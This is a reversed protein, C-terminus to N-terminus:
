THIHIQLVRVNVRRPDETAESHIAAFFSFETCDLAKRLVVHMGSLALKKGVIGRSLIVSGFALHREMIFAIDYPRTYGTNSAKMIQHINRM